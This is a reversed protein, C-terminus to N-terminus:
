AGGLAHDVHRDSQEGEDDGAGHQSAGGDGDGRAVAERDEERLLAHAAVHSREADVLQARHDLIGLLAQPGTSASSSSARMVDAPRKRRLYRMSSIGWSTLMRLPSILKTPGRGSRGYKTSCYM